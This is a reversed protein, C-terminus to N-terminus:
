LISHLKQHRKIHNMLMNPDLFHIIQNQKMYGNNDVFISYDVDGLGYSDSSSESKCKVGNSDIVYGDDTGCIAVLFDNYNDAEGYTKEADVAYLYITRRIIEFYVETKTTFHKDQILNANADNANKLTDYPDDFLDRNVWWKALEGTRGPKTDNRYFGLYWFDIENNSSDYKQILSISTGGHKFENNKVKALVKTGDVTVYACNADGLKCDDTTNGDGVYNYVVKSLKTKTGSVDIYTEEMSKNTVHVIMYNSGNITGSTTV